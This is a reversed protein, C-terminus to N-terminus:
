SALSEDKVYDLLTDWIRLDEAKLSLEEGTMYSDATIMASLLLHLERPSFQMSITANQIM